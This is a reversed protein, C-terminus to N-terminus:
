GEEEFYEKKSAVQRILDALLLYSPKESDQSGKSTPPMWCGRTRLLFENVLIVDAIREYIGYFPTPDLAEGKGYAYKATQNQVIRDYFSMHLSNGFAMLWRTFPNGMNDLDFDLAGRLDRMKLRADLHARSGKVFDEGTEEQWSQFKNTRMFTIVADWVDRRALCHGYRAQRKGSMGSIMMDKMTCKTHGREINRVLTRLNKYRGAKNTVVDLLLEEAYTKQIKRISGYDDYKGVIPVFAPSWHENRYSAGTHSRRSVRKPRLIIFLAPDDVSIPLRSIVCTGFFCGM